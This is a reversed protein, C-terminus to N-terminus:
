KNNNNNDHHLIDEQEGQNVGMSAMEKGLYHLNSHNWTRTDNWLTM